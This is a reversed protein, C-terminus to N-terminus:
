FCPLLPKIIKNILFYCDHFSDLSRLTNRSTVRCKPTAGAQKGQYISHAISSAATMLWLSYKICYKDISAAFMLVCQGISWYFWYVLDWNAWKVMGGKHCCAPCGKISAITWWYYAVFWKNSSESILMMFHHINMSWWTDGNIMLNNDTM